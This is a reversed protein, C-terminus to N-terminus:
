EVCVSAFIYGDLYVLKGVEFVRQLIFNPNWGDNGQLLIKSKLLLLFM